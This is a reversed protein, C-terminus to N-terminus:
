RWVDVREAAADDRSVGDIVVTREGRVMPRAAVDYLTALSVLATVDCGVVGATDARGILDRHTFRQDGDTLALMDPTCTPAPPTDPFLRVEHTWPPVGFPALPAGDIADGVSYLQAGDPATHPADSVIVVSAGAPDTSVEVGVWWAALVIAATHWSVRSNVALRAGPELMLESQLLHAGKASWQALSAYSQEFRGTETVATIAPRHGFQQAATRVADALTASPDPKPVARLLNM